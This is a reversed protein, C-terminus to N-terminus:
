KRAANAMLRPALQILQEVANGVLPARTIMQAAIPRLRMLM